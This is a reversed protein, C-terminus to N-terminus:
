IKNVINEYDKLIFPFAALLEKITREYNKWDYTDYDIIQVSPHISLLDAMACKIALQQKKLM